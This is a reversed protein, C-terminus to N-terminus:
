SCITPPEWMVGGGWSSQPESTSTLLFIFMTDTARLELSPHHHQQNHRQPRTQKTQHNSNTPPAATPRRTSTYYGPQRYRSIVFHLLQTDPSKPTSTHSALVHGTAATRNCEQDCLINQSWGGPQKQVQIRCTTSSSSCKSDYHAQFTHCLDGPLPIATYLCRPVLSHYNRSGYPPLQGWSHKSNMPATM